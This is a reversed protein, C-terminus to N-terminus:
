QSACAAYKQMNKIVERMQTQVSSSQIRENQRQTFRPSVLVSVCLYIGFSSCRRPMTTESSSQFNTWM